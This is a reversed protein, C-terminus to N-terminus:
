SDVVLTINKMEVSFILWSKGTIFIYFLYADILKLKRPTNKEYDTYFNKLVNSISPSSSSAVASSSSGAKQSAGQFM